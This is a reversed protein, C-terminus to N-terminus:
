RISRLPVVLASWAPVTRDLGTGALLLLDHAHVTVDV